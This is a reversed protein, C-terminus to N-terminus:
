ANEGGACVWCRYSEREAAFLSRRGCGGGCRWGGAPITEVLARLAGECEDLAARFTPPLPSLAVAVRGPTRAPRVAIGAADCYVLLKQAPSLTTRGDAHGDDIYDTGEEDFLSAGTDHVTTHKRRM